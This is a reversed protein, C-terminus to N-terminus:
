LEEAQPAWCTGALEGSSITAEYGGEKLVRQSPIYAMVDNAYSTVWTSAGLERKLRHSYDVVSEGALAVWTLRDGVEWAQIPYPYTTDFKTRLDLIKLLMSGRRQMPGPKGEAAKQLEERTPLKDLPLDVRALAASAPGSINRLPEKLVAEVADSLQRGYKQ